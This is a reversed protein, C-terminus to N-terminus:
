SRLVAVARDIDDAATPALLLRGAANPGPKIVKAFREVNHEVLRLARALVPAPCRYNTELDVRLLGPLAKDALSVLRRDTPQTVAPFRVRISM